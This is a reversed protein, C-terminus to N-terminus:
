RVVAFLKESHVLPKDDPGKVHPNIWLPRNEKTSRYYQNRWHGRVVWQHGWEVHKHEGSSETHSAHERKRLYIVRVTANKQKMRRREARELKREEHVVVKQNLFLVMTCLLPWSAHTAIAAVQSTILNDISIPQKYDRIRYVIPYPSQTGKDYLWTMFVVHDETGSYFWSYGIISISDEPGDTNRVKYVCQMLNEFTFFGIESPLDEKRFSADEPLTLACQECMDTMNQSWYYPDSARLVQPLRVAALAPDYSGFAERFWLAMELRHRECYLAIEDRVKIAVNYSM